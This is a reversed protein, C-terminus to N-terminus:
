VNTRISGSESLNGSLVAMMEANILEVAGWASRLGVCIHWALSQWRACPDSGIQDELARAQM